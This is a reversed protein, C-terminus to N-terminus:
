HQARNDDCEDCGLWRAWPLSSALTTMFAMSIFAITVVAMTSVALTIVAMIIVAMIIVAMTIVAMTIVAMTTVAPESHCPLCLCSGLLATLLELALNRMQLLMELVLARAQSICLLLCAGKRDDANLAQKMRLHVACTITAHRFAQHM